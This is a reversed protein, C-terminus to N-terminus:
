FGQILERQHIIWQRSEPRLGSLNVQHIDLDLFATNIDEMLVAKLAEKQEFGWNVSEAKQRKILNLADRRISHDYQYIPLAIPIMDEEVLAFDLIYEGTKSLAYERARAYFVEALDQGLSSNKIEQERSGLNDLDVRALAKELAEFYTVLSRSIKEVQEDSLEYPQGDYGTGRRYSERQVLDLAEARWQNVLEQDPRALLTEVGGLDWIIASWHDRQAQKLWHENTQDVKRFARYVALDNKPETFIEFLDSRYRLASALDDRPNIKVLDPDMQREGEPTTMQRIFTEVRAHAFNRQARQWRHAMDGIPNRGETFLSCGIYKDRHSDTCFPPMVWDSFTEGFYLNHIAKRDYVFAEDRLLILAGTMASSMSAVYDMVSSTPVLDPSIQGELYNHFHEEVETASYSAWLAGAFNHRLGLVHGIEHAMVTRIMDQAMRLATAEDAEVDLILQATELLMQSHDLGCLDMKEFGRLSVQASTSASASAMPGSSGEEARLRRLVQRAQNQSSVAFVSTMFVQAHLIEGTRPDMQGDAYAFGATDWEVWQVMNYDPDPAQVGEPAMKVQIKEFGFAKNWYLIGDIVAQRYEEPTNASVAFVIPADKKPDPHHHFKTAFIQEGRQTFRRAIEFFGMREFNARESPIYHPNHVYPSLYYVAEVPQVANSGFLTGGALQAVQRVVLRNSKSIYAKDIFSTKAELSIFEAAPDVRGFDSSRWDRATFLQNMGRNFDFAIATETEWLIPFQALLFRARFNQNVVYADSAELMYVSDDEHRFSVIRSKLGSFRPVEMLQILQASLLFEQGLASKQIVIETHSEGGPLVAEIVEFSQSMPKVPASGQAPAEESSSLSLGKCAIQSLSLLSILLFSFVASYYHKM